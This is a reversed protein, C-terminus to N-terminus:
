FSQLLPTSSCRPPCPPVLLFSTAIAVSWCLRLRTARPPSVWRTGYRMQPHQPWRGLSGGRGPGDPHHRLAGGRGGAAVVAATVFHCGPARCDHWLRVPGQRGGRGGLLAENGKPSPRPCTQGNFFYYFVELELGAGSAWLGAGPVLRLRGRGPGGAGPGAGERLLRPSGPARMRPGREAAARHPLPPAPRALGPFM